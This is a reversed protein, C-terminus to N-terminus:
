RKDNDSEKTENIGVCYEDRDMNILMGRIIKEIERQSKGTVDIEHVIKGTGIETVGVKM